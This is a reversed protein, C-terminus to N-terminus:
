KWVNRYCCHSSPWATKLCKVSPMLGNIHCHVAEACLFVSFFARMMIREKDGLDPDSEHTWNSLARLLLGMDDYSPDLCGATGWSRHCLVGKITSSTGISWWFCKKWCMGYVQWIALMKNISKLRSHNILRMSKIGKKNVNWEMRLKGNRLTTVIWSLKNLLTTHFPPINIRPELM